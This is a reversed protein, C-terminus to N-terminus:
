GASQLTASGQSLKKIEAETLQGDGDADIQAFIKQIAGGSYGSAQLLAKFEERDILGDGDADAGERASALTMKYAPHRLWMKANVKADKEIDERTVKFDLMEQTGAWKRDMSFQNRIDGPGGAALGKTKAFGAWRASESFTADRSMAVVSPSSDRFSRTASLLRSKRNTLVPAGDASRTRETKWVSM